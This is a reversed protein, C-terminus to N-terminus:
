PNKKKKRQNLTKTLITFPPEAENLAQCIEVKERRKPVVGGLLNGSGTNPWWRTGYFIPCMHHAHAMLQSVTVIARESSSSVTSPLTWPSRFLAESQITSFSINVLNNQM